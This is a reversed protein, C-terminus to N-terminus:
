QFMSFVMFILIGLILLFDLKFCVHRFWQLKVIHIEIKFSSKDKKNRMEQHIWLILLLLRNTYARILYQTINRGEKM